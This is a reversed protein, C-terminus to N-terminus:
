RQDQSQPLPKRQPPAPTRSEPVVVAPKAGGVSSDANSNAPLTFDGVTVSKLGRQFAKASASKRLMGVFSESTITPLQTLSVVRSTTSPPAPSNNDTSGAAGKNESAANVLSGRQGVIHAAPQVSQEKIIESAQVGLVRNGEHDLIVQRGTAADKSVRFMGQTWGVLPVMHQGNGEVFLVVQENLRFEPSGVIQSINNDVQGGKFRLTLTQGAYSGGLVELQDFTVFTYIEREPNYKSEIGAVRGMVIGDAEKVLDDFNKYVLTTAFAQVTMFLGSLMLVRPFVQLALSLLRRFTQQNKFDHSIKRVSM